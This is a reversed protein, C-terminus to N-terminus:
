SLLIDAVLKIEMLIFLVILVLNFNKESIRRSWRIGLQTFLLTPVIAIAGIALRDPTLLAVQSMASFQAIGFLLFTFATMFAYTERALGNAHYYPGVISASIGMAGQITGASVGLVGALWRPINFVHDGSRRGFYQVLYVGLWIALMLKLARDGMVSLLWTGFFGGVFGLVLFTWHQKLLHWKRHTLIVLFNAALGPLVMLVVADAVSTFSAIMPVAVIPLGVGTIGKFISGLAIALLAAAVLVYSDLALEM